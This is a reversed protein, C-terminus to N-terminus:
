AAETGSGKKQSTSGSVPKAADKKTEAKSESKSDSKGEGGSSEKPKDGASKDGSEVLNRKREKDSKFDTEYWGSGKLRFSPASILRKLAPKGCEPCDTLPADSIKQLADMYHSCAECRYEYIPM